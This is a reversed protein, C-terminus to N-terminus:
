SYQQIFAKYDYEKNFKHVNKIRQNVETASINRSVNFLVTLGIGKDNSIDFFMLEESNLVNAKEFEQAVIDAIEQFSKDRGKTINYYKQYGSFPQVINAFMTMLPYDDLQKPIYSQPCPKSNDWKKIEVSM